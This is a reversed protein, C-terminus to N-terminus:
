GSREKGDSCGSAPCASSYGAVATAGGNFCRIRVQTSCCPLLRVSRLPIFVVVSEGRNIIQLGDAPRLLLKWACLLTEHVNRGM